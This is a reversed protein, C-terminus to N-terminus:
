AATGDGIVATASEADAAKATTTATRERGRFLSTAAYLISTSHADGGNNPSAHASLAHDSKEAITRLVTKQTINKQSTSELVRQHINKQFKVHKKGNLM